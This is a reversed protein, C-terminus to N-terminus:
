EPKVPWTINEPFGSQNTIDRLSQRYETMETTLTNDSLALYDTEKLLDNRKNRADRSLYDIWQQIEEPTKETIDWGKVWDENENQYFNSQTIKQTKQDFTPQPLQTYKYVNYNALVSEPIDKPFSTNPNDRRLQGITYNEPIGNTIKIFM